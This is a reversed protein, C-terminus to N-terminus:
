NFKVSFINFMPVVEKAVVKDSFGEQWTFSIPVKSKGALSDLYTSSANIANHNKDYLIIVTKIEPITFLSNNQLSTQVVPSTEENTLTIDGVLIQLEKINADTVQYWVPTETFSFTTFVPVSNGVDIAPEFIAFNGGPPVFTDGERAGIYLNDKDAFHFKYHIKYIASNKNQNQIYAVANYRGPVVRFARAWLVNLPNVAITCARACSGGCDIGTESGNQKGDTCTPAQNIYPRAFLYGIFAFIGLLILLYIIQRKLAWTM